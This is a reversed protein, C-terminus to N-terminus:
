QHLGVDTGLGAAVPSANSSSQEMAAAVANLNTSMVEAADSVSSARHSTDEAGASLHAAIGSLDAATHDVNKSNDAFQRIVGQLKDIFINFWKGLEALEAKSQIEIRKTLDGEGEAIDQFSAVMQKLAKTIGFVIWLRDVPLKAHDSYFDIRCRNGHAM